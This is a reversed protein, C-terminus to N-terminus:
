VQLALFAAPARECVASSLTLPLNKESTALDPLCPFHKPPNKIKNLISILGYLVVLSRALTVNGRNITNHREAVLRQCEDPRKVPILNTASSGLIMDLRLYSISTKNYTILFAVNGLPGM